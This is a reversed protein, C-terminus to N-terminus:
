PPRCRPTAFAAPGTCRWPHARRPTCRHHVSRGNGASVNILARENAEVSLTQQVKVPLKERLKRFEAPLPQAPSMGRLFTHAVLYDGSPTNPTLGGMPSAGEM